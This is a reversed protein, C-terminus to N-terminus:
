TLSDPHQPLVLFYCLAIPELFLYGWTAAAFLIFGLFSIGGLAAAGEERLGPRRWVFLSTAVAVLIQFLPLMRVLGWSKVYGAWGYYRLMVEPPTVRSDRMYVRTQAFFESGSAIVFPFNILLGIPVLWKLLTWFEKRDRLFLWVVYPVVTFVAIERSILLFPLCPTVVRRRKEFVAWVFILYTSAFLATHGVVVQKIAIKSFAHLAVLVLALAASAEYSYLYFKRRSFLRYLFFYFLVPPLLNVYRVDLGLLYLPLYPIWIGPLYYGEQPRGDELVRPYYPSKGQRVAELGALVMPIMDAVKINPPGEQIKKVRISIAAIALVLFLIAFLKKKQSPVAETPVFPSRTKPQRVFSLIATSIALAMLGGALPTPLPFSGGLAKLSFFIALSGLIVTQM